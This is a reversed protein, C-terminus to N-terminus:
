GNRKADGPTNPHQLLMKKLHFQRRVLPQKLLHALLPPPCASFRALFQIFLASTYTRACLIQTARADLTLGTLAPLVRGETACILGAREEGQAVAFKSRLISRALIRTHEPVDTDVSVKFSDMMRKGGLIRKTIPETLQTNRLLARQVQLDSLIDGRHAVAELGAPNRHHRAILRAHVLGALPNNLVARVVPPDADLCLALLEPGKVTEAAAIRQDRTMHRFHTEYLKTYNAEDLKAEPEEPPEASSEEEEAAEGQADVGEELTDAAGDEDRRVAAAARVQVHSAAPEAALAPEDTAVAGKDRLLTLIAEVREIGIGTLAVVEPASLPVDLRSLVFGEEPTLGLGHVEATPLATRSWRGM